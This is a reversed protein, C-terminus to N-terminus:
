QSVSKRCKIEAKLVELFIWSELIIELRTKGTSPTSLSPQVRVMLSSGLIIPQNNVEEILTSTISTWDNILFAGKRLYVKMTMLLTKGERWYCMIQVANLNLVVILNGIKLPGFGTSKCVDTFKKATYLDYIHKQLMCIDNFENIRDQIFWSITLIM